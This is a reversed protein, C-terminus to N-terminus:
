QNKHTADEIKQKMEDMMAKQKDQTDDIFQQEQSKVSSSDNVEPAVSFTKSLGGIVGFFIGLGWIGAVAIFIIIIVNM